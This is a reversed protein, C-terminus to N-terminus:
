KWQRKLAFLEQRIYRKNDIKDSNDASLWYYFNDGQQVRKKVVFVKDKNFFSRNQTTSKYLFGPADKKKLRESLVLVKEGIELPERLKRNRRKDKKANFRDRRGFDQKIKGLRHFDYIERFRDDTLSKEEVTEPEIGYKKTPTKNLNNTARQILKNPNIKIKNRRDNNKSKLLLKKLERIKQETAFAKGERVKTSFLEINFKKSLKKIETQQFELDTQLRMRGNNDNAHKEAIDNYFLEMKKKLLHRKKMPYTYIKKTFLDVIVLCYHPEAASKAMFRIDAIDAHLLDFPSNISYLTSRDIDKKKNSM